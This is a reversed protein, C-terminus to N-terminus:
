GAATSASYEALRHQPIEPGVTVETKGSGLLPRLEPDDRYVGRCEIAWLLPLVERIWVEPDLISRLDVCAQHGSWTPFEDDTIPTEFHHQRATKLAKAAQHIEPRIEPDVV